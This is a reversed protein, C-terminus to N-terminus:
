VTVTGRRKGGVALIGLGIGLLAMTGPEPTPYEKLTFSMPNPDSLDVHIVLDSDDVGPYYSSGKTVLGDVLTLGTARDTTGDVLSWIQTQFHPAPQIGFDGSAPVDFWANGHNMVAWHFDTWVAGTLNTISEDAIRISSVTAADDLRQVFDVMIAPFRGTIPNPPYVFDKSIQILLYDDELSVADVAVEVVDTNYTVSWGSDVEVPNFYEDITWWTLPMTAMAAGVSSSSLLLALVACCASVSVRGTRM